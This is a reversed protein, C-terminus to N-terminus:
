GITYAIPIDGLSKKLKANRPNPLFNVKFNVLFEKCNCNERGNVFSHMCLLFVCFLVIICSLFFDSRANGNLFTSIISILEKCNCNGRGDVFSHM